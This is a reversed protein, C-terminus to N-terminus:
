YNWPNDLIKGEREKRGVVLKRFLFNWRSFWDSSTNQLFHHEKFNRLIWLSVGTDSDRRWYYQLSRVCTNEQSNLSSEFFGEECFM